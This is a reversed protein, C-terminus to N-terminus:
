RRWPQHFISIHRKGPRAQGVDLEMNCFDDEGEMTKFFRIKSYNSGYNYLKVSQCVRLGIVPKNICLFFPKGWNIFCNTFFYSCGVKDIFFVSDNAGIYRSSWEMFSSAAMTTRNSMETCQQLVPCRDLRGEAVPFEPCESSKM